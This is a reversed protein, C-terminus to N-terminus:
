LGVRGTFSQAPAAFVTIAALSLALAARGNMAIRGM